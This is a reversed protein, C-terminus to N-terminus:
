HSFVCCPDNSCVFVYNSCFFLHVVCSFSCGVPVDSISDCVFTSKKLQLRHVPVDSISNCVFTSKKLQLGHVPVDSISNCVFTNYLRLLETM